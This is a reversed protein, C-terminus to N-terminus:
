EELAALIYDMTPSMLASSHPRGRFPHKWNFWYSLCRHRQPNLELGKAILQLSEQQVMPPRPLMSVSPASSM